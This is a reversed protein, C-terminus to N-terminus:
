MEVTIATTSYTDVAIIVTPVSHLTEKLDLADSMIWGSTDVELFEQTCLALCPQSTVSNAVCWLQMWYTGPTTAYLEGTVTSM